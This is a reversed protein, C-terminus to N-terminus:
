ETSSIGLIKRVAEVVDKPECESKLLYKSAGIYLCSEAEKVGALNTLVVVPIEKTNPNSKLRLLVQFGDMKPMMIDLLVLSPKEEFAKKLGEEGDVATLLEFKELTFIRQYLDVLERDDEILLIRVM